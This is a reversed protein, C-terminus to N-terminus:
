KKVHVIRTPFPIEIKHKNLLKYIKINAEELKPYYKDIHDVWFFALMNLSFDGMTDLKVFPEPDKLIDDFKNIEALVLKKVKEPDEGYAITFPVKVRARIDPLTYNKIKMNAMLGNPIVIVDNDYTRVRTARIGVDQVIGVTGDDLQIKEGVNFTKDLILSVGGFINSLTDKVAFGIAIGAIGVGALLGAVNVGWIDLVMIAMMILIIVRSTRRFLPVLADDITSATKKAVKRGWFDIMTVVFAIIVFSSAIYVLSMATRELAVGFGNAIAMFELSIRAGIFVL